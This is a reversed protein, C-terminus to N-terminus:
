LFFKSYQSGQVWLPGHQAGRSRGFATEHRMRATATRSMTRRTLPCSSVGLRPRPVDVAKGKWSFGDVIHPILPAIGTGRAAALSPAPM